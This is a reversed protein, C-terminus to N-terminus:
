LKRRFTSLPFLNKSLECLFKQLQRVVIDHSVAEQSISNPWFQIKGFESLLQRPQIAVTERSVAERSLKQAESTERAIVERSRRWQRVRSFHM